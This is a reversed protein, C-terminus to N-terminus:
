LDNGPPRRNSQRPLFAATGFCTQRFLTIPRHHTSSRELQITSNQRAFSVANRPADGFRHRPPKHTPEGRGFSVQVTSGHVDFRCGGCHCGLSSGDLVCGDPKSVACGEGKRGALLSEDWYGLTFEHVRTWEVVFHSFLSHLTFLSFESFPLHIESNKPVLVLALLGGGQTFGCVFRFFGALSCISLLKMSSTSGVIRQGLAFQM